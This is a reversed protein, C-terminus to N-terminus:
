VVYVEDNDNNTNEDQLDNDAGETVFWEIDIVISHVNTM